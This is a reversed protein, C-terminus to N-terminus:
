ASVRMPLVLFLYGDGEIPTFICPSNSTKINIKVYEDDIANMIDQLYRCNFSIVCDKGEIEVPLTEHINSIESRSDIMMINENLEIKVTNNKDSRSIISVRNISESFKDRNFVGVSNFDSTIINRYNIYDGMILRSIFQTAGIEVMLKEKSFILKVSDEAEDIIRVIENLARAPIIYKGNSASECPKKCLSLRYGDLAVSTIVNDIIEFLCGKFIPRTDEQSAAFAVKNILDKLDEKAVVFSSDEIIKDVQPYEDYEMCKIISENDGYKITLNKGGVCELSIIEENITKVFDAFLKGMVLVEGEIQVNAALRTIISLELDTATLTLFGDKAVMKIGELISNNKKIPMAKSVKLVAASLALGDCTLKM